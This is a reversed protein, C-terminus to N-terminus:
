TITCRSTREPSPLRAEAGLGEVTAAAATSFTSRTWRMRRKKGFPLSTILGVNLTNAGGRRLSRMAPPPVPFLKNHDHHPTEFKRKAYMACEPALPVPPRALALSWTGSADFTAIFVSFFLTM